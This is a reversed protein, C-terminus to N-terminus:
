RSPTEISIEDPELATPDPPAPPDAVVQKPDDSDVPVGGRCLWSLEGLSPLV